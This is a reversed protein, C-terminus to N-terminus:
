FLNGNPLKVLIHAVSTIRTLLSISHIMHNTAGSDIIWDHPSIDSPITLNYSFVSHDLTISVQLCLSDVKDKTVFVIDTTNISSSLQSAKPQTILTAAQHTGLSTELTPHLSGLADNFYVHCFPDSNASKVRGSSYKVRVRNKSRFYFRTLGHGM